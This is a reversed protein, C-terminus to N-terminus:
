RMVVCVMVRDGAAWTDESPFLYYDDASKCDREVIADLVEQGPFPASVAYESSVDVLGTVDGFVDTSSCPIVRHGDDAPGICSGAAYDFGLFEICTVTRDGQAWSERVPTFYTYPVSTTACFDEGYAMSAADGPYPADEDADILHLKTVRAYAEEAECRVVDVDYEEVFETEDGDAIVADETVCDGARLDFVSVSGFDTRQQPTQTRAAENQNAIRERDTTCAVALGFAFVGFATLAAVITARRM